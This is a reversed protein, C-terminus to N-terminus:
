AGVFEEKRYGQAYLGASLDGHIIINDLEQLLLPKPHYGIGLGARRLMALDNAGDGIALSSAAEIEYRNLYDHMFSEKAEQGLIPPIVAGTLKREVIELRNGHHHDFGIDEAIAGTFVDFGGSLLVCRVGNKKMTQIFCRAGPNLAIHQLTEFLTEDALGALMSVRQTLAEEFNLLGQMAQATIAAIKDKVGAYDALEDLTEASVITSDMDAFVIKKRRNALASCFLDFRDAAFIDRLGDLHTKGPKKDLPIDVAGGEALWVPIDHAGHGHDQLYDQTKQLHAQTIPTNHPAAAVLTLVYSM